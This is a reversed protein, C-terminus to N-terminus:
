LGPGTNVSALINQSSHYATIWRSPNLPQPLTEHRRAFSIFTLAKLNEEFTFNSTCLAKNIHEQHLANLSSTHPHLLNSDISQRTKQTPKAGELSSLQHPGALPVAELSTLPGRSGSSLTPASQVGGVEGQFRSSM